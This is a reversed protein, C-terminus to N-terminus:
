SVINTIKSFLNHLNQHFFQYGMGAVPTKKSQNERFIVNAATILTENTDYDIFFYENVNRFYDANGFRFVLTTTSLYRIFFNLTTFIRKLQVNTGFKM